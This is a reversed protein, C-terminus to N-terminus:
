AAEPSLLPILPVNLRVVDRAVAGAAGQILDFEVQDGLALVHQLSGRIASHRVFCDAEGECRIVGFGRLLDFWRVIGTVRM